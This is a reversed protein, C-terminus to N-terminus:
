PTRTTSPNGTPTASISGGAPTGTTSGETPATSGSVVQPAVPLTARAQAPDLPRGAPVLGLLPTPVEVAPTGDYGLLQRADGPLPYRVGTDVLLYLTGNAVGPAPQASILLGSGPSVAIQDAFTGAAAGSTNPAAGGVPPSDMTVRVEIGAGVRLDLCPVQTGTFRAAPPPTAPLGVNTSAVASRPTNALAAASIGRTVVIGDPYARVTNPDGLVLAAGTPTLASLGDGRLVYFQDGSVGGTVEFLQGVRTPKGDITPGASGLAPIEPARLDPGVPLANLWAAGVRWRRAAGYGLADLTAANRIRMRRNDWILYATGDRGVAVLATGDPLPTGSGDDRVHLTTFPQEAGSRNPKLTACVQWNRANLRGGDPLFDPASEVGVPLGHPVRALSNRSVSVVKMSTGLILKASTFNVVPRLEGDVFLYRTGTEKEVILAGARKWTDKGGPVIFGYIAFGVAVIVAVILGTLSGVTFRRLPTQPADPEARLLASSLRGVVFLHAQLQDRRSQM